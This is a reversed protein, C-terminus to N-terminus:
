DEPSDKKRVYHLGSADEYGLKRFLELSAENQPEILAAIVSIGEARLVSEAEAVLRVAYGSRRHAPLVALRNIWGKRGDHTALVVGVLRGDVELGIM